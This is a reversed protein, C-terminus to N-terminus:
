LRSCGRRRWRSRAAGRAEDVAVGVQREGAPAGALVLLLDRADGVLLDRAGAAADPGGRPGQSLRGVLGHEGLRLLEGALHQARPRGRELALGAVAERGGALQARECSAVSSSSMTECSVVRVPAARARRGRRSCSWLRSPRPRPSAARLRELVHAREVDEDLRDRETEVVEVPHPLERGGCRRGGGRGRRATRSSASPAPRASARRGSADVVERRDVGVVDAREGSAVHAATSSGPASNM